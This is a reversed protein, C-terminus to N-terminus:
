LYLPHVRGSRATNLREEHGVRVFAFALRGSVVGLELDHRAPPLDPDTRIQPASCYEQVLWGEEIARGVAEGWAADDAIEKGVIVGHGRTDLPRKLVYRNRDGIIQRVTTADCGAINRSWPVSPRVRRCDEPAFLDAFQPDSLVALCLKNDGIVRGRLGNQVFLSEERVARLYPQLEGSMRLLDQMGIKAFAHHVPKGRLVVGGAEGARLERPDGHLARIGLRALSVGYAHVDNHNAGRPCLVAVTHPRRGTHGEALDVLWRGTWLESESPLPAPLGIGHETLLPRWAAQSLGSRSLGGPCNANTELVRLGGDPQPMLDLRLLHVKEDRASALEARLPEPITLVQRLRADHPYAAVITEIMRHYAAVFADLECRLGPRLRLPLGMPRSPRAAADRRDLSAALARGEATAALAAVQLYFARDLGPWAYPRHAASARRRSAPPGHVM